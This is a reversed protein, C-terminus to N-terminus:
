RFRSLLAILMLVVASWASFPNSPHSGQVDLAAKSCIQGNGDTHGGIAADQAHQGSLVM